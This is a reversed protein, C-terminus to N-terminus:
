KEDDHRNQKGANRSRNKEAVESSEVANRAPTTGNAAGTTGATAGAPQASTQLIDAIIEPTVVEKMPSDQLERDVDKKVKPTIIFTVILQQIIIIIGGVLFYLALAAPASVSIFFTMMPSMIMSMQMMKKQDAPLGITMMFGQIVYLGTAIITVLMSPNGLNIGFFSAQFLDKSYIVAQYIGMMIPMQLLLPLCGIGGMMSMNNEKYIQMTLANLKMSQDQSIGPTKVANQVLTMQPQLVKMKEQQKTSKSSQRLMLPLLLLRVVFSVLAIGWGAGNAGGMKESVWLMLNQLPHGFIQYITGYGFGTPPKMAAYDIKACGSLVLVLSLFLAGLGLKKILKKNM